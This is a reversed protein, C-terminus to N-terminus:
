FATDSVEILSEILVHTQLMQKVYLESSSMEKWVTM